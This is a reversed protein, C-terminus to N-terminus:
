NNMHFKLFILSAEDKQASRLQVAHVFLYYFFSRGSSWEANKKSEVVNIPDRYIHLFCAKPFISRIEETYTILSPDKDLVAKNRQLLTSYLDKLTKNASFSKLLEANRSYRTDSSLDILKSRFGFRRIFGTEQLTYIDKSTSILAHLLSTGSRGVGVVFILKGLTNDEKLM